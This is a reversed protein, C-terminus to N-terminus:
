HVPCVSICQGNSTVFRYWELHYRPPDSGLESAIWHGRRSLKLRCLSAEAAPPRLLCCFAGHLDDTARLHMQASWTFLRHSTPHNRTRGTARRHARWNIRQHHNAFLQCFDGFRCSVLACAVHRGRLTALPPCFLLAVLFPV